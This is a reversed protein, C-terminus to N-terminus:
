AFATIVSQIFPISLQSCFVTEAEQSTVCHSWAETVVTLSMEAVMGEQWSRRYTKLSHSLIFGANMGAKTLYKTM